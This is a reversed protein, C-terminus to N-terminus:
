GDSDSEYRKKEEETAYRIKWGKGHIGGIESDRKSRKDFLIYNMQYRTQQFDEAAQVLTFYTRTEGTKENEAVFRITKPQYPKKVLLAIPELNRPNERENNKEILEYTKLNQKRIRLNKEQIKKNKEQLEKIEERPRNRGVVLPKEFDETRSDFVAYEVAPSLNYREVIFEIEADYFPYRGAIKGSLAQRTIGLLEALEGIQDGNEDILEKLYYPDM